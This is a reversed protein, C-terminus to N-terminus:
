AIQNERGLLASAPVLYDFYGNEEITPDIEGAYVLVLRVTRGRPLKLRAVVRGLEPKKLRQVGTEHGEETLALVIAARIDKRAMAM